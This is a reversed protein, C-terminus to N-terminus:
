AKRLSVATVKYEPTGTVSDRGQGTARNVCAEVAQFTAFPEGPRVVATLHAHLTFAGHRSRVQVAEGEEVGLDAADDPHLELRDDERLEGNRTHRTMTAANFHFLSRGTNLLFPHAETVVEESTRWTLSRFAARGGGPFGDAHLVATGPHDEAPCPWQIGGEQDLRAHSIGAIAPWTRRAEDWVAAAGAFPFHAGAGLREALNCLVELDTRSSGRPPVVQRVRQVRRESNMFTGEKEFASAAPLFVTGFAKATETLFLDQAIV